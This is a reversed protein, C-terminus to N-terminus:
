CSLFAWYSVWSSNEERVRGPAIKVINRGRRLTTRMNGEDEFCAEYPSPCYDNCYRCLSAFSAIVVLVHVVVDCRFRSLFPM